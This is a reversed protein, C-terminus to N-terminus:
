KTAEQATAEELARYADRLRVSALEHEHTYEELMKRIRGEVYILITTKGAAVLPKHDKDEDALAFAKEVVSLCRKAATVKGLAADCDREAFNAASKLISTM